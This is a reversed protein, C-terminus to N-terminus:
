AEPPARPQASNYIPRSIQQQTHAVIKLYSNQPLIPLSLTPASLWNLHFLLTCYGCAAELGHSHAKHHSLSHNYVSLRKYPQNPDTQEHDSTAHMSAMAMGDMHGKMQAQSILPAVYILAMAFLGVMASLQM